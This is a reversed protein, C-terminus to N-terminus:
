LYYFWALIRHIAETVDNLFGEPETYVSVSGTLGVRLPDDVTSELEHVLSFDYREKASWM